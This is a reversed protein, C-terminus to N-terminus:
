EADTQMFYGLPFLDYKHAASNRWDTNVLCGAIRTVSVRHAAYSSLFVEAKNDEYLLIYHSFFILFFFLMELINLETSVTKDQLAIVNLFNNLNQGRNVTYCSASFCYWSFFIVVTQLVQFFFSYVFHYNAAHLSHLLERTSFSNDINDCVSVGVFSVFCSIFLVTVCSSIRRVAGLFGYM